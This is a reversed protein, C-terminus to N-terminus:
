NDKKEQVPEQHEQKKKGEQQHVEKQQVKGDPRGKGVGGGEEDGEGDERQAVKVAEKPLVVFGKLPFKMPAQFCAFCSWGFAPSICSNMVMRMMTVMVVVGLSKGLYVGAKLSIQAEEGGDKGTVGEEALEEGDVEGEVQRQGHVGGHQENVALGQLVEEHAEDKHAADSLGEEAAGENVEGDGPQAAAQVLTPPHQDGERGFITCASTSSITFHIFIATTESWKRSSEGQVEAHM